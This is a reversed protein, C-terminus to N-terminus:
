LAEVAVVGAVAAGTLPLGVAEGTQRHEDLVRRGAFASVGTRSEGVAVRADTVGGTAGAVRGADGTHTRRNVVARLTRFTELEELLRVHQPQAAHADAFSDLFFTQWSVIYRKRIWVIAQWTVDVALGTSARKIHM